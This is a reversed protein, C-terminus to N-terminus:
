DRTRQSTINQESSGGLIIVFIISDDRGVLPTENLIPLRDFRKNQGFVDRSQPRELALGIEVLEFFYTM